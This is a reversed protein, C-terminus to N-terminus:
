SWLEEWLSVGQSSAAISNELNIEIVEIEPSEYAQHELTNKM